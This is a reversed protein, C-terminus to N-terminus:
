PVEGPQKVHFAVGRDGSRGAWPASPALRTGDYLGKATDALASDWARASAEGSFWPIEDPQLNERHM